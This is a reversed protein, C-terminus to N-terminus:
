EKYGCQDNSCALQSSKTKRELLLSGCQPCKQNTPKYWFAKKCDPYNSCGYFVKGSKGRKVVIDGGCDPCKVDITQVIAKTNKCEPYGTCALFEGFRGSKIAMPKGCLECVEDTIQEEIQVKEIAEDAVKLEKELTGYFDRIIDKWDLDKVEVDDLKDEMEATFGTDVIEKFYEEMMDIVLFGLDTPLLTKKQRLVYKRELLTAIIPAYTSPRGINKEELDKVLSAETFRSPPETFKQESTIKQAKLNEGEELPPLFSDKDEDMNPNYVKQFGDFLLKSGSAKLLYDGNRIGVQMSDFVAAAMQSALFRTWILRYLNYQDKTLSDKISEPDMSINSPRIAEHADQIDKKKNSFVNNGIYNQGFNEQIYSRAAAKAEDSIRVSDTRIYTVLGVTGHGKVEVGEYLQQAVMMSKKTTFGLKTSADQQLSSTTFPAFPKRSREKKTISEVTFEGAKLDAIVNEAQQGNEVVLKKGKYEALRAAFKKEKQFVAGINWYEKPVFDQIQKERDCIIKLAASQVRGASLGRRIKRWLLPSIQYGVLRDLVRRAQQADVLKLDIPRPHKVANKIADKTIEHFVIRCPTQPDIGLLFALHWSIAEGERDPDTALYIKGAQKAEKKLEKILDGKGRIAIYQPEFDNEIDIGLKSKPLDRVHGVSAVVKYSSGLYKGITKAKSPSEVIVLTKKAAKATKTTKSTKATAM